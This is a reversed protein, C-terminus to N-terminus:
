KFYCYLTMKSDALTGLVYIFLHLFSPSFDFLSVDFVLLTIHHVFSSELPHDYYKTNEAEDHSKPNIINYLKALPSVAYQVFTRDLKSNL